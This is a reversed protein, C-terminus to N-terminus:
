RAVEPADVIVVDREIIRAGRPPEGWHCLIMADFDTSWDAPLESGLYRVSVVRPWAVSQVLNALYSGEPDGAPAVALIARLGPTAHIAAVTKATMDEGAGNERFISDTSSMPGTKTLPARTSGAPLFWPGALVVAALLVTWFQQIRPACWVCRAATAARHEASDPDPVTESM